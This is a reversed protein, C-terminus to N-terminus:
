RNFAGTQNDNTIPSLHEVRVTADIDNVIVVLRSKTNGDLSFCDRMEAVMEVISSVSWGVSGGGEDL